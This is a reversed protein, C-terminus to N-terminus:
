FIVRFRILSRAIAGYNRSDHSGTRNDGLLYYQNPELVPEVFDANEKDKEPYNKLGLKYSSNNRLYEEELITEQNLTNRIWVKSNRFIVQEGPLGIVRKVQWLKQDATKKPDIDFSFVVIEGSSIEYTQLIEVISVQQLNVLSPFMSDGRIQFPHRSINKM